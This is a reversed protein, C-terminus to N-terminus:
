CYYYTPINVDDWQWVSNAHGSLCATFHFRWASASDLYNLRM